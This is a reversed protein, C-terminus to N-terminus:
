TVIVGELIQQKTCIIEFHMYDKKSNWYGGWGFVRAGSLRTRIRQTVNQAASYLDPSTPRAIWTSWPTSCCENVSPNIDIALGWAHSSWITTGNIYRNNYAGASTVNYGEDALFKALLLYAPVAARAVNSRVTRTQGAHTNSPASGSTGYVTQWKYMFTISVIDSGRNGWYSYKWQEGRSNVTGGGTASPPAIYGPPIDLDPVSDDVFVIDPLEPFLHSFDDTIRPIDEPLDPPTYEFFDDPLDTPDHDESIEGIARLYAYLAPPMEDYSNIVWTEDPGNGLWHTDVDLYWTGTDMNMESRIGQIYHIYSEETVREYIRVQDDPEFAPNGPIRFRGKRYSWHIWLSILYAFKDVEDQSVFPYNPVLLTREQGGLLALDGQPDTASPITEGSAFGPQIASTLTPDDASVIIIESRLATDDVTVGYDMLVKTEDIDRISDNGVFGVGSIFNGTRWINPMRWVLGGTADVYCIFGLIEKIQNIGDMVSKNDWFSAPICPPDVPFAGSYAFDGWIRGSTGQENEVADQIKDEASQALDEEWDRIIPDSQGYPWYFGSWGALVKIIDTYDDINGPIIEELERTKEEKVITNKEPTYHRVEFEYVAARYPYTGLGSYQLNTFIVWVEEANYTEPLDITFWDESKPINVKKVYRKNSGNPYAPESNYGYPVTNNGQWVGNVKVAVYAVYGGWKPKLRVQNIPEGNTVGGIWEFSWVQNPGSNGVSLWYSATNGDFAHSARHGYVSGNRGYWPAVSSDWGSPRRKVVNEGAVAEQFEGTEETYTETTTVTHEACFELPYQGVPIIPPYLRQEILLKAADRCHVTITGATSYEVRDILWTGTLILNSDNWANPAGDSGWGQFTRIVRNPILMDQWIADSEHGWRPFSEPTIGRRFTYYGPRALDKLERRTPGSTGGTYDQDLNADPDAVVQNLFTLSMTAADSQHRRDISVTKINPIEYNFEDQGFLLSRWPGYKKVVAKQIIARTVPANDGVFQGSNWLDWKTEDMLRM